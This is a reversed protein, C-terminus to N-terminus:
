IWNLRSLLPMDGLLAQLAFRMLRKAEQLVGEEEWNEIAIALLHKGLFLNSDRPTIDTKSLVFGSGPIFRYYHEPLFRAKISVDASTLIGYGLVELLYKEFSRLIKQELPSTQLSHITAAYRKFLAVQADWPHLLRMLLENLYLGAFLCNGQLRPTVAMMEVQTLVPLEGRGAFSVLLPVFPQLYAAKMSKGQKVGKALTSLRGHDPTLLEVLFSTERFSRRHLMYAEQLHIRTPHTM